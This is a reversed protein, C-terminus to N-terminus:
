KNFLGGIAGTATKGVISGVEARSAQHLEKRLTAKSLHEQERRKELVSLKQLKGLRDLGIDRELEGLQRPAETSAPLLKQEAFVRSRLDQGATASETPRVGAAQLAKVNFRDLTQIARLGQAIFQKALNEPYFTDLVSQTAPGRLPADPTPGVAEEEKRGRGAAGAASALGLGTKAIAVWPIGM